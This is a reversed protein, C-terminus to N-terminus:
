KIINYNSDVRVVDGCELEIWIDYPVSLMIDDGYKVDYVVYYEETCGTIRENEDLVIKEYEIYDQKNGKIARVYNDNWGLIEYHYETGYIPEYRYVPFTYIEEEVYTEYIPIFLSKAIMRKGIIRQKEVLRTGQEYHDFIAKNKIVVEKSDILRAGEPLELGYEEHLEYKETYIHHSWKLNVITVKEFCISHWLFVAVLFMVFCFIIWFNKLCIESFKRLSNTLKLKRM